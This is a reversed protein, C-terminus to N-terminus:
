KVPRASAREEYFRFHEGLVGVRISRVLHLRIHGLSRRDSQEQMQRLAAAM